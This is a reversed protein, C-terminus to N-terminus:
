VMAEPAWNKKEDFLQSDVDYRSAQLYTIEYDKHTNM